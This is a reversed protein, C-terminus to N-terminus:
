DNGSNACHYVPSKSLHPHHSETYVSVRSFVVSSICTGPPLGGYIVAVEVGLNELERSVKYVDAKNFCVVCDGPKIKELNDVIFYFTYIFPTFM